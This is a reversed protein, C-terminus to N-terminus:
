FRKYNKGIENLGCPISIVSYARLRDFWTPRSGPPAGCSPVPRIVIGALNVFSARTSTTPCYAFALGYASSVAAAQGACSFPLVWGRRGRRLGLEWGLPSLMRGTGTEGGVRCLLLSKARGGRKGGPSAPTGTQQQRHATTTRSM